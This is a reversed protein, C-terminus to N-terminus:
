QEERSTSREDWGPAWPGDEYEPGGDYASVEEQGEPHPYSNIIVPRAGDGRVWDTSVRTVPGADYVIVEDDLSQCTAKLEDILEQVTM